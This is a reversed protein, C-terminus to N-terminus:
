RALERYVKRLLAASRELSFSTILRERGANGIAAARAPDGILTQLHVTLANIDGPEFILGQEGDAIAEPISGVRTVVTPLGLAMSELMSMPLGEDYSPLCFCHATRLRQDKEPGTIPGPVQVCDAIGLEAALDLLAQRQGPEAEFGYLELRLARRVPTTAPGAEPNSVSGPESGRNATGLSLRAAARLLDAQGKRAEYNALCIIRFPGTAGPQVLPQVLAGNPVVVVKAPDTWADLLRKWGDGLVVLRSSLGFVRRALWAQSKSLSSLFLHFQAGHIHLVVSRLLLRALLVDVANRWFTFRSCTHIHVIHPRWGLCASALRWLLRLQAGIGQALSRGTATTKVNNLVRLDVQPTGCATGLKLGADLGAVSGPRCGTGAGPVEGEGAFADALHSVVTAMGGVPPPLPGIMLVRVRAQVDTRVRPDARPGRPLWGARCLREISTPM